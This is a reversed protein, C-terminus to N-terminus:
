PANGYTADPGIIWNERVIMRHLYRTDLFHPADAEFGDRFAPSRLAADAAAEDEFWLLHVADLPTEAVEYFMAPTLCQHYRRLSPLATMKPAHTGLSYSRFDELTTGPRRKLMLMVKVPLAGRALPPGELVPVTETNMAITQWFAAWNPEDARAGKILEPSRLAAVLAEADDLWIEACGGFLPPEPQLGGTLRTDVCYLRIGPIKSAFDVAHRHVWYDQFAVESMGPRPAAFIFQHLMPSNAM